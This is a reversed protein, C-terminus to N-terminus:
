SRAAAPRIEAAAPMGSAGKALRDLGARSLACIEGSRSAAALMNDPLFHCRMVVGDSQRSHLYRVPDAISGNWIAIVGLWHMPMYSDQLALYTVDDILPRYLRRNRPMGSRRMAEDIDRRVSAYDAISVSVPQGSVTGPVRARALLPGTVTGLVVTSSVVAVAVAARVTRGLMRDQAKDEERRLSLCLVGALALMPLVHAAEYVNRNLQSMGWVMVCGVISLAVLVRPEALGRIGTRRLFRSLPGIGVVAASFWMTMVGIASFVIVPSSFLKAPLWASMPMRAPIALTVYNFPNAGIVLKPLLDLGLTRGSLSGALNERALQAALIPDGHCQFRHTWYGLSVLTVACVIAVGTIRPLLTGRGKACTALCAVAVPAYLVGKLHFSVGITVLVVIAITKCWAAAPVPWKPIKALAVMVTLLIAAILPQEPRSMVMLFPMVGMALLSFALARTIARRSRDQEIMGVLFWLMVAWLFAFAVGTARVYLPDALLQNVVACVWRTPMMFWPPHVISNPGCMDTFGIDVGGDIGAREELRWGIEDTYVPLLMGALISVLFTGSALGALVRVRQAETGIM